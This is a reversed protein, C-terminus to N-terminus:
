YISSYSRDYCSSLAGDTRKTHLERVAPIATFNLNVWPKGDDYKGHSYALPLKHANVGVRKPACQSIAQLVAEAIEAGVCATAHGCPAPLQPNVVTGIPATVTVPNM